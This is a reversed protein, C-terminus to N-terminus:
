WVARATLRTIWYMGVCILATGVALLTQGLSGALLVHVPDAGMAEGLVVGLAPLVALVVGSARPGAM